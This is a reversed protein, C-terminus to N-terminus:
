LCNNQASTGEWFAASLTENGSVNYSRHLRKTGVGFYESGFAGRMSYNGSYVV